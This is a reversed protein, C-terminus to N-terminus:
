DPCPPRRLPLPDPLLACPVTRYVIMDNFHGDNLLDMFRRYGFPAWDRHLELTFNGVTTECVVHEVLGTKHNPHHRHIHGDDSDAGSAALLSAWLLVAPACGCCRM